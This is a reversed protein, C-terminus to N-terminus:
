IKIIKLLPTDVLGFHFVHSGSNNIISLAETVSANTINLGEAYFIDM